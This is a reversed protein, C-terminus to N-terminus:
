GGPIPGSGNVGPGAQRPLEAAGGPGVSLQAASQILDAAGDTSPRYDVTTSCTPARPYDRPMRPSLPCARPQRLCRPASLPHDPWASLWSRPFSSLEGSACSEEMAFGWALPWTARVARRMLARSPKDGKYTNRLAFSAMLIFKEIFSLKHRPQGAVQPYRRVRHTVFEHASINASGQM